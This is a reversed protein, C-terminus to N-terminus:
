QHKFKGKTFNMTTRRSYDQVWYERFENEMWNAYGDEVVWAEHLLFAIRESYIHFLSKAWRFTQIKNQQGCDVLTRLMTLEM